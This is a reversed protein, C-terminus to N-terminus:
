VLGKSFCNKLVIGGLEIHAQRRRHFGHQAFKGTLACRIRRRESSYPEGFPQFPFAFGPSELIGPDVRTGVTGLTL